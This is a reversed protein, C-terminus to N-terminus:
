VFVLLIQLIQLGALSLMQRLMCVHVYVCMHVSLGFVSHRCGWRYFPCICFFIEVICLVDPVTNSFVHAAESFVYFTINKKPNQFFTFFHVFLKLPWRIIGTKLVCNGFTLVPLDGVDLMKSHLLTQTM